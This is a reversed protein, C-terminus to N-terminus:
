MTCEVAIYIYIKNKAVHKALKANKFGVLRSILCVTSVVSLGDTYKEGRQNSDMYVCKLGTAVYDRHILTM